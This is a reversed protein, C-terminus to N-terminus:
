VITVARADAKPEEQGFEAAEKGSGLCRGPIEALGSSAHQRMPSNGESIWIVRCM